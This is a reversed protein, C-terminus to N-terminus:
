SPDPPPPPPLNAPLPADAGSIPPNPRTPEVVFPSKAPEKAPEDANPLRDPKPNAALNKDQVCEWPDDAGAAAPQCFWDSGRDPAANAPNTPAPNRNSCATAVLSLAITALLAHWSQRALPSIKPHIQHQYTM